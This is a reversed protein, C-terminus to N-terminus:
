TESRGRDLFEVVLTATGEPQEFPPAHGSYGM